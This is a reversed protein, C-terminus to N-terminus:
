SMQVGVALVHLGVGFIEEIQYVSWDEHQLAVLAEDAVLRGAADLQLAVLGAVLGDLHLPRLLALDVEFTLLLPFRIYCKSKVTGM